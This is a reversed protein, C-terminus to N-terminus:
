LLATARPFSGLISLQLCHKRVEEVGKQVNEDTRHGLFDVFFYYEWQRKKSPRSEINTMNIGYRKLVDLVDALAGAKHATSFLIATKDEGTPKADESGIVLFRTINNTIDEINGCIVKLEYLEAAVTSGIAAAGSEDAAMQAARASSAVPVIQAEKFTASLWNRCQAFIEPKSYIKEINELPCNGLLNHHIAMLVEACIKVDSDILADLTEIVGGGTSNEIPVLGLDCHGKSVEDFISLIDALSEYEVSQGFKLMAATHSFSGGPGLYGIRLPRELFFSGSMLERWIAVLCKDPLPGENAEVIGAFVEKERDPAYIPKDAKNKLKGIQVVVRARENLLKVLQRDLENIQNRLKDLSM